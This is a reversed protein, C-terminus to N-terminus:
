AVDGWAVRGRLPNTCQDAVAPQSRSEPIAALGSCDRWVPREPIPWNVGFDARSARWIEATISCENLNSMEDCGDPRAAILTLCPPPLFAHVTRCKPAKVGSRPAARWSGEPPGVGLLAQSGRFALMLGEVLWEMKAVMGSRGLTIWATRMDPGGLCIDTTLFDPTELM